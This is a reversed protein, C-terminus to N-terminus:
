VGANLHMRHSILLVQNSNCSLKFFSVYVINWYTQLCFALFVMLKMGKLNNIITIIMIM